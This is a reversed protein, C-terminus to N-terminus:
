RRVRRTPHAPRDAREPRLPPPRGGLGFGRDLRRRRAAVRRARPRPPAHRCGVVDEAQEREALAKAAQALDAKDLEVWRGRSQVLPRAELALRAIDAASLEVDDFMASWRVNALQQAGVVSQHAEESTLRLSPTAKRRSLNPVRVDYGNALLVDGVKTMFTWAEDQSLLVEGRRRSGPRLLLSYLRELRVLHDRIHKSRSNSSTVMVQEVPDLTKKEGQALVRLHWAGSSDPEALEVVLPFKTAQTVPSTWQDIRRGLESGLRTPAIFPEGDLRALMAEIMDSRNNLQPPPAPVELRHASAAVITDTLDESFPTPSPM